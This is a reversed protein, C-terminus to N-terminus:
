NQITTLVGDEFYLYNGSGYVWQEHISTGTHTRNISKPNGWSLKAQESTMGVFVKEEEIANWVKESWNFIKRPDKTLFAEDFKSNDRLIDSVNTGSLNIDIFGEDGNPTQLIFRVPQHDYWGAVIDVVKLPTFKKVKISLFEDKEEDYLVIDKKKYWLTKDLWRSRASDIDAVPAIDRISQSYATASLKEGDDEMQFLVEPLYDSEKVSIVKAIRGVYKDYDVYFGQYGYKQLSKPKPLFIFREGVWKSIPKFVFADRSTTDEQTVKKGLSGTRVYPNQPQASLFSLFGSLLYIYIFWKM